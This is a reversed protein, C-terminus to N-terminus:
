RTSRTSPVAFRASRAIAEAPSRGRRSEILRGLAARQSATASEGWADLVGMWGRELATVVLAQTLDDDGSVDARHLLRAADASTTCRESLEYADRRSTASDSSRRPGFLEREAADVSEQEIEIEAARAGDLRTRTAQELAARALRRGEPTLGPDEDIRAAADRHEGRIRGADSTDPGTVLADTPAVRAAAARISDNMMESM